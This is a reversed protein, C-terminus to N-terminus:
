FAASVPSKVPHKVMPPQCELLAELYWILGYWAKSSQPFETMIGQEKVLPRRNKLVYLASYTVTFLGCTQECSVSRRGRLMM